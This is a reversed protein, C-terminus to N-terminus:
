ICLKIIIMSVSIIEVSNTIRYFHTKHDQGHVYNLLCKWVRTLWSKSNARTNKKVM